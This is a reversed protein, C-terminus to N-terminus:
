ASPSLCWHNHRREVPEYSGYLQGRLASRRIVISCTGPEGSLPEARDELRPEFVGDMRDNQEMTATKIGM